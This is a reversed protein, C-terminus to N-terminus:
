RTVDRPAAEIQKVERTKGSREIARELPSAFDNGSM